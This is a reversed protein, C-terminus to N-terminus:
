DPITFKNREFNESGIWIDIQIGNGRNIVDIFKVQWGILDLRAEGLLDNGALNGYYSSLEPKQGVSIRNKIKKIEDETRVVNDFIALHIGEKEKHLSIVMKSPDKQLIFHAVESIIKIIMEEQKM